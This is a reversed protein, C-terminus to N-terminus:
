VTRCHGATHQGYCAARGGASAFRYVVVRLNQVVDDAFAPGDKAALTVPAAGTAHFQVQATDSRGYTFQVGAAKAPTSARTACIRWSSNARPVCTRRRTVGDPRTVISVWPGAKFQSAKRNVVLEANDDYAAKSFPFVARGLADLALSVQAAKSNLTLRVGDM